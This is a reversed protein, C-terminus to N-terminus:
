GPMRELTLDLELKVKRSLNFEMPQWAKVGFQYRDLTAAAHIQRIDAGREHVHGVLQVPRTVGHITLPGGIRFEDQGQPEIREARFEIQPFREVDLFDRGRLHRDRLKVGTDVSAAQITVQPPTAEGAESGSGQAEVTFEDVTFEAFHGRVPILGMMKHGTFGLRSDGRVARWRGAHPFARPLHVTATPAQGTTRPEGRSNSKLAENAISMLDIRRM